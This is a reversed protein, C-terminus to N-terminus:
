NIFLNVIYFYSNKYLNICKNLVIYLDFYDISVQM